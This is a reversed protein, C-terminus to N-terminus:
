PVTFRAHLNGSPDSLFATRGSAWVAQPQGWYLDTVTNEGETTHLNVAGEEFLTLSPFTYLTGGEDRVTWGALDVPGGLNVIVLTEDALVGPAQAARITLRPLPLNPDRTATPRPPEVTSTPLASLVPAATTVGELPIVLTQGVSLVNPDGLGNAAMLDDVSVGYQQAISGLTEGNQVIHVTPSPEAPLLSAEASAPPAATPGTAAQTASLSVAAPARSREWLWLVTLTAVASVVANLLLYLLLRRANMAFRKAVAIM